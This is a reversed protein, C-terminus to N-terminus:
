SKIGRPRRRIAAFGLLATGFLLLSAPAPVTVGTSVPGTAIVLVSRPDLDSFGLVAFDSLPLADFFFRDDSDDPGIPGEGGGTMFYFNVHDADGFLSAYSVPAGDLGTLFPFTADWEAPLLLDAGWGGRATDNPGFFAANNSVAFATIFWDLEVPSAISVTYQGAEIPTPGTETVSVTPPFEIPVFVGAMASNGIGLAWIATLVLFSRVASKLM